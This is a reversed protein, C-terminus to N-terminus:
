TRAALREGLINLDSWVIWHPNHYYGGSKLYFGQYPNGEAIGVCLSRAQQAILWPLVSALLARGVGKRQREFSVYFNQIESDIGFRTTLHVAIFGIIQDDLVAKMVQREPKSSKPSKGRFYTIWRRRRDAYDTWPASEAPMGLSQIKSAIEVSTLEEIDAANSNSVIFGSSGVPM